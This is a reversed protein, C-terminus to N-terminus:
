IDSHPRFRSSSSHRHRGRNTYNALLPWLYATWNSALIPWILATWIRLRDHCIPLCAPVPPRAWTVPWILPDFPRICFVTWLWPHIVVNWGVAAWPDILSPENMREIWDIWNILWDILWDNCQFSENMWEILWDNKNTQENMESLSMLVCLFACLSMLRTAVMM